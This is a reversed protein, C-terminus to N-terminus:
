NIITMANQRFSEYFKRMYAKGRYVDHMNEISKLSTIKSMSFGSSIHESVKITFLNGPKYKCGDIYKLLCTLDASINLPTKDSKQYQNFELTWTDESSTIISLFEQNESVRKHPELKKTRFYYRCNLCYFGGKHKSMIEKLLALLEKVVFYHWGEGNPNMLLINKKM